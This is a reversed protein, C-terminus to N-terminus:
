GKYYVGDKKYRTVRSAAAMVFARDRGLAGTLMHAYLTGLAGLGVVGATEIKRM